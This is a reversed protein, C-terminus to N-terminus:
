RRRRLWVSGFVGLWTALALMGGGELGPLEPCTFGSCTDPAPCAGPHGLGEIQECSLVNHLIFPKEEGPWITISEDDLRTVEGNARIVGSVTLNIHEFTSRV